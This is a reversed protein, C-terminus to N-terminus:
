GSIKANLERLEALIDNLLHIMARQGKDCVAKGRICQEHLEESPLTKRCVFELSCHDPFAERLVENNIEPPYDPICM